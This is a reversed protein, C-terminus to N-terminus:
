KFILGLTLGVLAGVIGGKALGSKDAVYGGLGGALAGVIAGEVPSVPRADKAQKQWTKVDQKLDDREKTLATVAKDCGDLALECAPLKPNEDAKCRTCSYFLTCFVLATAIYGVADAFHRNM